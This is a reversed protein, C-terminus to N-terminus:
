KTCVKNQMHRDRSRRTSFKKKCVLNCSFPQEGNHTRSHRSLSDKRNFAMNCGDEPCEFSKKNSLKENNASSVHDKSSESNELNRELDDQELYVKDLNAEELDAQERLLDRKINDFYAFLHDVCDPNYYIDAM